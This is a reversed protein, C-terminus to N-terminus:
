WVDALMQGLSGETYSFHSQQSESTSPISGLAKSHLTLPTDNM